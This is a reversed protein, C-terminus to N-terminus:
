GDIREKQVGAGLECARTVRGREPPQQPVDNLLRPVVLGDHQGRVRHLLGLRQAIPQADKHVALQAAQSIGLCPRLNRENNDVHLATSHM